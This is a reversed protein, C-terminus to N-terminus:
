HREFPKKEEILGGLASLSKALFENFNLGADDSTAKL